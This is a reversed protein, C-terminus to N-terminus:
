DEGRRLKRATAVRRAAELNDRSYVRATFKPDSHGAQKALDAFDAGSDRGDTVGGARSDRNWVAKPVGAATAIPRWRKSYAREAYPLGSREDIVMPGIRKDLPVSRLEALALPYLSFDVVVERDRKATVFRLVMDDGLHAWSVGDEWVRGNLVIGGEVTEGLGLPRWQGTVDSQRLIGDFQLAQGLAVSPVGMEHAKAIIAVAQAHTPRETRPKPQKFRMKGLIRDIRDCHAIEVSVGYDVIIRVMTMLGRAGRTRPKQDKTRPKLAAEYWRHLDARATTSLHREGVAKRLKLLDYDYNRRSNWKLKKYPSEEDNQYRSILARWTGDFKEGKTKEEIWRGAEGALREVEKAIFERGAETQDDGVIRVNTATEDDSRPRYGLALADAPAFWYYRRSGDANRRPKLGPAKIPDFPM